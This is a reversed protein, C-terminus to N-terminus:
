SSATSYVCSSPTPSERLQPMILTVQLKMLKTTVSLIVGSTLLSCLCELVIVKRMMNILKPRAVTNRIRPLMEALLSARRALFLYTPSVCPFQFALLTM